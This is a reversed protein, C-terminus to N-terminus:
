SFFLFSKLREKTIIFKSISLMFYHEKRLTTIKGNIIYDALEKSIKLLAERSM